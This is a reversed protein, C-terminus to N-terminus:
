GKTYQRFTTSTYSLQIERITSHNLRQHKAMRTSRQIVFMAKGYRRFSLYFM